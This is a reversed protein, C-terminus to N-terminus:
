MPCPDVKIADGHQVKVTAWFLCVMLYSRKHKVSKCTAAHIQFFLGFPHCLPRYSSLSSSLFSILTQQHQKVLKLVWNKFFFPPDYQQKAHFVITTKEVFLLVQFYAAPVQRVDYTRMCAESPQIRCIPGQLIIKYM